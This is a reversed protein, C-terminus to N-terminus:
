FSKEAVRKMERRLRNLQRQRATLKPDFDRAAWSKEPSSIPTPAKPGTVVHANRELPTQDHYLGMSENTKAFEGFHLAAAADYARAAAQEDDFTGLVDVAGAVNIKASWKGGSRFVGKFRSTKGDERRQVFSNQANQSATVVRLNSRRNDLGNGNIHDALEGPKLGLIYRHMMRQSKGIKNTNTAAYRTGGSTRITWDYQSVREIDEDDILAFIRKAVRIRVVV